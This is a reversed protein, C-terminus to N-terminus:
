VRKPTLGLRKIREYLSSRPVALRRAAREVHGGEEALVREVHRREVEELTLDTDGASPVAAEPSGTFRLDDASLVPTRSLIAARELVNRMERTNGPWAYARLAEVAPPSLALDPRGMEAAIGSLLSEALVPIDEPRGRLPPIVLPLASIRFYLDSRFRKERVAGAMDQHTAAVLRVDVERDRVDGLRRFRGEELVKLLKPQVAADVDGIEDLFLTGRHAVELLGEKAAVAGTFAGKEHGFLESELLEKSLSACNLDVFAEDARPGHDHLWRALVGKGVGTEGVILVPSDSRAVREADEALAKMAASPLAFPDVRARADRRGGAIQRKRTRRADLLRNLIVVLAPLEVPKTLFHEAGEKVARVALDISGHATLVVLPVAADLARLRPLLELATGDPLSYDLIGADPRRSKFMAEAAQCTAAEDVDFGKAELGDRLAFRVGPEDDVILVRPRPM